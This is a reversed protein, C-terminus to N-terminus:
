GDVEGVGTPHGPADGLAVGAATPAAPEVPAWPGAVGWEDRRVLRHEGHPHSERWAEVRTFALSANAGTEQIFPDPLRPVGHQRHESAWRTRRQGLQADAPLLRGAEALASVAVEAVTDPCGSIDVLPNLASSVLRVDETYDM